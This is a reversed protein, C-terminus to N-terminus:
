VMLEEYSHITSDCLYENKKETDLAKIRKIKEDKSCDMDLINGILTDKDATVFVLSTIDPYAKKLAMAGCIDLVTVIKKNIKLIEEISERSLGFMKGGYVTKELLSDKINEFEEETIVKYLPSDMTSYSVPRKYNSNKELLKRAIENKGGGSPGVLALIKADKVDVINTDFVIHRIYQLFEEYDNVSLLGTMHNNWPRRYLIPHSSISNEINHGGDDLSFDVNYIDKRAGLIINDKPIEPFDDLIRKMRISMFEVPVATTLFVEGIKCLSRIFEKAGPLLPQTRFFEETFMYKFREDIETGLNGWCKIDTIKYNTGRDKNMLELAYENCSALVDDYDIAIKITKFRM